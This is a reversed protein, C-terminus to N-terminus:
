WEGSAGGGGFDGGGGGDFSGGTDPSSVDSSPTDFSPSSDASPADYSSSSDAFTEVVAEVLPLVASLTAGDRDDDAVSLTQGIDAPYASPRVNITVPAALPQPAANRPFVLGWAPDADKWHVDRGPPPSIIPWVTTFPRPHTRVRDLYVLRACTSCGFWRWPLWHWRKCEAHKAM